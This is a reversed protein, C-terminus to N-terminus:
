KKELEDIKGKLERMRLERDVFVKNIRELEATKASLEATREIVKQELSANLSVIEEEAKRRDTVDWVTSIVLQKGPISTNKATIYTTGEGKRIIPVNEWFMRAPDGSEMDTLVRTRVQERIKEDEYVVQWFADPDKLADRTTRYFKPFNDNMYEFKVSPYVANVAVGIPLSDMVATIMEKSQRLELEAQKQATVDIATTLFYAPQHDSDRMLKVSVDAWVVAGSKHLYRKMFRATDTEGALLTNMIKENPEVDDPHTLEQWKKHVLEDQAYGLMVCFAENVQMEGTPQMISKGANAAEFVQRFKEESAQLAVAADLERHYFINRQRQWFIWVAAAAGFIFVCVMFIMMLLHQRVPADIENRDMRAVMFWPSDPVPKLAALVRKGRYDIGDMVGEEGLAARAAPLDQRSLSFRLKLATGKQFKLENLFVVENGERRVLLTEATKVPTPWRSIMPYLYVTPDIVLAVAGLFRGNEVIPNIISLSIPRDPAERHLDLFVTKGSKRIAPILKQIEDCTRPSESVVSQRVRGSADMLIVNRYYYVSSLQGLWLRMHKNAGADAPQDMVRRVLQAFVINKQLLLGDSLRENRWQVIEAVKLEAISSLTNEVEMRHNKEYNRYYMYGTAAIGTAILVFLTILAVPVNKEERFTLPSRLFSHRFVGWFIILLGAAILPLLPNFTFNRIITFAPVAAAVAMIFTGLGITLFQGRDRRAIRVSTASLVTIGIVVLAYSYVLHVWMWPGPIRAGTQAIFFQGAQHFAVPRIVWFGHLSSTWIVGQTIIPIILLAALRRPTLWNAHGTFQLMFTIWVVPLTALSIFRLDFWFLAWEGTPAIISLGEMLAMLCILLCVWMFATGGAVHRHRRSYDALFGSIAVVAPISLLYLILARNM